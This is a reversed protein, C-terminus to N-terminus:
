EIPEYLSRDSWYDDSFIVVGHLVWKHTFCFQTENMSSYARQAPGNLRTMVGDLFYSQSVGSTIAPGDERHKKGDRVWMRLRNFPDVLAPGTARDLNDDNLWLSVGGLDGKHIIQPLDGDREFRGNRLWATVDSGDFAPEDGGDLQDNHYRAIAGDPYTILM